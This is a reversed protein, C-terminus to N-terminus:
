MDPKVLVTWHCGDFNCLCLLPTNCCLRGRQRGDQSCHLRSKKLFIDQFHFRSHDLNQKGLYFYKSSSLRVYTILVILKKKKSSGFAERQMISM